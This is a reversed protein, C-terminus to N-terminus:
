KSVVRRAPKSVVRVAPVTTQGGHFTRGSDLYHDFVFVGHKANGARLCRLISPNGCETCAVRLGYGDLLQHVMKAFSQNESLSGFAQGQFQQLRMEIMNPIQQQILHVENKLSGLQESAQELLSSAPMAMRQRLGGYVRDAVLEVSRLYLQKQTDPLDVHQQDLVIEILAIPSNGHLIPGFLLPYDTPNPYDDISSSSEDGASGVNNLQASKPEAFIARNQTWALQVLQEHKKQGAITKIVQDMRYRVGFVAGSAGQAKMWTVAATASFLECLQPLLQELFSQLPLDGDVLTALQQVQGLSPLGGSHPLEGLAQQLAESELTSAM